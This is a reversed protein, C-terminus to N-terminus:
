NSPTSQCDNQVKKEVGDESIKCLYLFTTNAAKGVKDLRTVLREETIIM